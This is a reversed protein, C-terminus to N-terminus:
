LAWDGGTVLYWTRIAAEYLPSFPGFFMFYDLM